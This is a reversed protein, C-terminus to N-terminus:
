FCSNLVRHFSKSACVRSAQMGTPLDRLFEMLAGRSLNDSWPNKHGPIHRAIMHTKMQASYFQSHRLLRNARPGRAWDANVFSETQTNDTRACVISDRLTRLISHQAGVLAALELVSIHVGASTRQNPLWRGYAYYVTNTASDLYWCGWGHEGGADAAFTMGYELVNKASSLRTPLVM